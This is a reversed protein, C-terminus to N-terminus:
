PNLIYSSNIGEQRAKKNTSNNTIIIQSSVIRIIDYINHKMYSAWVHQILTDSIRNVQRAFHMM